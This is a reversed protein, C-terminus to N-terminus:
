AAPHGRADGQSRGCGVIGDRQIEDVGVDVGHDLRGGLDGAAIEDDVRLDLAGDVDDRRPRHRPLEDIRRQQRRQAQLANGGDLAVAYGLEDQFGVGLLLPRLHQATRDTSAAVAEDRLDDRQAVFRRQLQDVHQTRQDDGFLVM